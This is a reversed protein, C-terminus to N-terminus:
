LAVGAVDVLLARGRSVQTQTGNNLYLRVWGDSMIEERVVGAIKVVMGNDFYVKYEKTQERTDNM